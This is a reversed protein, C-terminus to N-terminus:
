SVIRDVMRRYGNLRIATPTAELTGNELATIIAAAGNAVTQNAVFGLVKEAKTTAVRYNRKDLTSSEVCIEIPRALGTLLAQAVEHMRMNVHGINFIQRNVEARPATVALEVARAVDGIHVLPRYQEGGGTIHLRGSEFVSLAMANVVLDFRMGPSLGFVTALRFVTTCFGADGLELIRKEAEANSRAYTTLPNLPATEDVIADNAGYVSCSSLLLYRGVGASRALEAARIRARVNILETISPNLEGAPDNSIAAMDVVADMGRFDDLELDRTDGIKVHAFPEIDSQRSFYFLDIITLNNGASVLRKAVITGVYGAGGLLLINM